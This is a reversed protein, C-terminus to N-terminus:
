SPQNEGGIVDGLYNWRGCLARAFGGSLCRDRGEASELMERKGEVTYRRPVVNVYQLAPTWIELGECKSAVRENVTRVM